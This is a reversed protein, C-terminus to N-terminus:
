SPPEAGTVKIKKNKGVRAPRPTAKKKGGKKNMKYKKGGSSSLQAIM